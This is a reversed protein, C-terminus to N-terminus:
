RARRRAVEDDVERRLQRQLRDGLDHAHRLLVPVEDELPRVRHDAGVVGLELTAGFARVLRRGRQVRVGVVEGLLAAAIRAVVDDGLEDVGLDVALLEGLELEVHEHQQQRDRAVLGGAVGGRPAHPREHLVGLLVRRQAVVEVGLEVGATSSIRRQADGTYWKRRVAVAVGLDAALLDLSPSLTTM